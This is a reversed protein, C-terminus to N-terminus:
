KLYDNEVAHLRHSNTFKVYVKSYKAKMKISMSNLTIMHININNMFKNDSNETIQIMSIEDIWENVKLELHKVQKWYNIYFVYIDFRM